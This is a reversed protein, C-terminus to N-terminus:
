RMLIIQLVFSLGYAVPNSKKYVDLKDCQESAKKYNGVWLCYGMFDWIDMIEKFAKM